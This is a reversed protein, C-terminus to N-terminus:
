LLILLVHCEVIHFVYAWGTSGYGVSICNSWAEVRNENTHHYGGAFIGWGPSTGGDSSYFDITHSRDVYDYAAATPAIVVILMLAVAITASLKIGNM